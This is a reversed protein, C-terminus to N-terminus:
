RVSVHLGLEDLFEEDAKKMELFRQANRMKKFYRHQRKASKEKFDVVYSTKMIKGKLLGM